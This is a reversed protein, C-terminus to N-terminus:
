EFKIELEGDKIKMSEIKKGDKKLAEIIKEPIGNVAKKVDGKAFINADVRPKDVFVLNNGDVKLEIDIVPAGGARIRAKLEAHGIIKNNVLKISFKEITAQDGKEKLIKTFTELVREQFDKESIPIPGKKELLDNNIKLFEEDNNPKEKYTIKLVGDEIDMREIIKGRSTEISKKLKDGFQNSLREMDERWPLARALATGDETIDRVVIEGSLIGIDFSVKPKGILFGGKLFIEVNLLGEETTSIKLDEYKLDKKELKLIKVGDKLIVKKIEEKLQEQTLPEINEEYGGNIDIPAEETTEKNNLNLLLNEVLDDLAPKLKPLWMSSNFYYDTDGVLSFNNGEKSLTINVILQKGLPGYEKIKIKVKYKNEEIKEIIPTESFEMEKLKLFNLFTANIKNNINEVQEDIKTVKEKQVIPKEATKIEIPPTEKVVDGKDEVTIAPTTTEEVEPQGKEGIAKEVAKEIEEITFYRQGKDNKWDKHKFYHEAVDRNNKFGIGTKGKLMYWFTTDTEDDRKDLAKTLSEVDKLAGEVGGTKQDISATTAEETEPKEKAQLKKLKDLIENTEQISENYLNVLSENGENEYETVYKTYLEIKEEYFGIPNTDLLELQATYYNIGWEDNKKKDVELLRELSEKQEKIILLIEEQISTLPAEVEPQEKEDIAKEAEEVKKEKSVEESGIELINGNIKLTKIPGFRNELIEELSPIIKEIMPDINPRVLEELGKDGDYWHREVKITNQSNALILKVSLKVSSPTKIGGIKKRRLLKIEVEFKGEGKAEVNVGEKEFEVGEKNAYGSSLFSMLQRKIENAIEVKKITIIRIQETNNLIKNWAQEIESPKEETDEKLGLAILATDCEDNVEEISKERIKAFIQGTENGYVNEIDKLDEQRKKEIFVRTLGRIAESKELNLFNVVPTMDGSKVSALYEMKEKVFFTEDSELKNKYEQATEYTENQEKNEKGATTRSSEKAPNKVTSEGSTVLEENYKTNIKEIIEYVKEFSKDWGRVIGSEKSSYLLENINPLTETSADKLPNGTALAMEDLSSKWDFLTNIIKSYEGLAKSNYNNELQEVTGKVFWYEETDLTYGKGFGFFPYWKDKTKGSTGFLSRYFPIKEGAINVIIIPRDSDIGYLNEIIGADILGKVRNLYPAKSLQEVLQRRTEISTKKGERTLKFTEAPKNAGVGNTTKKFEKLAEAAAIYFNEFGAGSVPKKETPKPVEPEIAKTVPPPTAPPATKVIIKKGYITQDRLDQIEQEYGPNVANFYDLAEQYKEVEAKYSLKMKENEDKEADRLLNKYTDVNYTLQSAIDNLKYKQGLLEKCAKNKELEKIRRADIEEIQEFIKIPRTEM